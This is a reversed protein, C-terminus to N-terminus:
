AAQKESRAVESEATLWDEWDHGDERGRQVYLEYARQQIRAELQEELEASEAIRPNRKSDSM